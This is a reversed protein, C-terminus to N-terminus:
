LLTLCCQIPSHEMCHSKHATLLVNLQIFNM